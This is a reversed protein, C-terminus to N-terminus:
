PAVGQGKNSTAENWLLALTKGLDIV